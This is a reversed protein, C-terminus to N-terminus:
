KGSCKQFLQLITQQKNSPWLVKVKEASQKQGDLSSRAIKRQPKKNEDPSSGSKSRVVKPQPNTTQSEDQKLAISSNKQQDNGRTPRLQYADPSGKKRIVQKMEKDLEKQLQLALLRDEEEQLMPDDLMHKRKGIVCNGVHEPQDLCCEEGNRQRQSPKPTSTISNWGSINHATNSEECNSASPLSFDGDEFHPSREVDVDKVNACSIYSGGNVSGTAIDFAHESEDHSEMASYGFMHQSSDPEMRSKEPPLTVQPSLTPMDHENEEFVSIESENNSTIVPLEANTIGNGLHKPSLFREIDRSQSGKVKSRKCSKSNKVLRRVVPSAVPSIVSSTSSGNLDNNILRALEEDRKLQEEMEVRISDNQRHQEEEEEALLKKIYEDSAKREAEEQALREAEIKSVEAEYEQRIEGPKCLHRSPYSESEDEMDETDQGSARRRCEEPYQSRIKGWLAENVLTGTRAHYRAWTSVRKRCFPCCLSAKEVTSQFCPNCLTHNCPLTVPELLFNQCIPCVCESRTLPSNKSKPM